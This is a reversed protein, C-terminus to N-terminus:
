IVYLIQQVERYVLTIIMIELQELNKTISVKKNNKFKEQCIFCKDSESYQKKQEPTLPTM